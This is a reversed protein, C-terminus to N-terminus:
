STEKELLISLKKINKTFDFKSKVKEIANTYLKTQLSEDSILNFINDALEKSNNPKATCGTLGNEVLEPIGSINTSAVLVGSLMSEMLVVPIGDMDGNKDEKCPLIFIDLQKLWPSVKDHPLSGIFEIENSLNLTSVLDKLESRLPGDGAIELNFDVGKDKLIKCTHILIDFGKKEVLRGLSGFKMLPALSQQERAKFIAADIGCYIVNIKGELAGNMVLFRRNYMSITVAFIARSVKEKLLWGREFLDNAHSTFSFSVGSIISAYMAIDTPIHAFNAHLHCCRERKLLVVVLSSVVFRYVLGMGIHSTIGISQADKLAIALGRFYSFPKTVIIKLNALIIRLLGSQYLYHTKNKLRIAADDHVISNPVHVSVPVIKFGQTELGIIENYVFTASLAPIEPALYAIKKIKKTM